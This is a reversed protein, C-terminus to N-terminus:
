KTKIIRKNYYGNATKIELLYVGKSMSGMAYEKSQINLGEDNFVLRGNIDFVRVELIRSNTCRIFINSEFPNPYVVCDDNTQVLDNNTIISHMKAKIEAYTMGDHDVGSKIKLAHSGCYRGNLLFTDASMPNFPSPDLALVLSDGPQYQEFMEGCNIGNEGLVVIIANVPINYDGITELVKFYGTQYVRDDLEAGYDFGIFSAFCFSHPKKVNNYFDFAFELIGCGCSMIQDISHHIKQIVEALPLGKCKGDEVKLFNTDCGDIIIHNSLENWSYGTTIILTDGINFQALYTSCNMGDTGAVYFTDPLEFNGSDYIDELLRFKGIEIHENLEHGITLGDMVVLM